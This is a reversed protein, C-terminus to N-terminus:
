ADTSQWVRGAADYATTSLTMAPYSGDGLFITNQVRGMADYVTKTAMGRRDTSIERRGEADYTTTRSFALLCSALPGCLCIFTSLAALLRNLVICRAPNM